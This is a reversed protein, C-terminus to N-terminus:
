DPFRLQDLAAWRENRAASACTCTEVNRDIGCVPCLGLCADACLPLLPLEVLVADRVLPELDVTDDVLPYTEGEVPHREYLEHVELHVAGEVPELCRSCEAEWRAEISGTVVIGENVAELRLHLAVAEGVPVRAGTTALDEVVVERELRRAVGPRRLLDGVDVLLDPHAGRSAPPFPNPTAFKATM